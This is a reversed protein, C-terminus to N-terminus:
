AEMFAWFERARQNLEREPEMALGKGLLRGWLENALENELKNWEALNSPCQGRRDRHNPSGLPAIGALGGKGNPWSGLAGVGFSFM